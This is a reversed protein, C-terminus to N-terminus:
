VGSYALFGGDVPVVIGTVFASTPSMLWLVTGILNEPCGIRGMPNHGIIKQGRPSPQGTDL